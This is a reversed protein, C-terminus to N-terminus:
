KGNEAIFALTKQAAVTGPNSMALAISSHIHRPVVAGSTTGGAARLKMQLLQAQRVLSPHERGALLVLFPPPPSPAGELLALTNGHAAWDPTGDAFKAEYLSRTGGVQYTMEDSPDYGAGDIAIVGRFPQEPLGAREQLPRDLALRTVLQGGASHGGLFLKSPDGGEEAIRSRVWAVAAAVDDFQAPMKVAPQLRYSIVATAIGHRAYFRGINGYIDKGGVLLARDGTTWYGGHVFVLVPFGAPTDRPPLFLDLKHKQPDADPGDRYALDKKVREPEIASHRYFLAVGAKETTAACASLFLALLAM